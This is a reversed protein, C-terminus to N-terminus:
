RVTTNEPCGLNLADCANIVRGLTFIAGFSPTPELSSHCVNLVCSVSQYLVKHIHLSGLTTIISLTGVVKCTASM